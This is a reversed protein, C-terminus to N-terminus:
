LVVWIEIRTWACRKSRDMCTGMCTDMCTDMCTGKMMCMNVCVDMCMDMCTGVWTGMRIEAYVFVHTWVCTWVHTKVHTWAWMEMQTWVHGYMNGCKKTLMLSAMRGQGMGDYWLWGCLGLGHWRVMALWVARPWVAAGWSVVWGDAM